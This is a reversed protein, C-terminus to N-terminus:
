ALRQIPSTLEEVQALMGSALQRFEASIAADSEVKEWFALAWAQANLWKEKSVLPDLKLPSIERRMAGANTPAFAMPLMDYVPSISLAQKLPDIAPDIFSLNGQHMDSNAILKGFAYIQEIRDLTTATILKNRRLQQATLFWNGNGGGFEASVAELSVLRRRGRAGTRDFREVELFVEGKGGTFIEAAAAAIGAEQLVSLAHAESRLLDGWRRTNENVAPSSFKVLVQSSQRDAHEAYCSFKPQEGGASSGTEEGALSRQALREYIQIKDERPVPIDEPKHFWRQYAMEGIVFNGVTEDGARALAVLTQSETWKKIDDPFHLAANIDRGWTRGLFGQPRMDTIFWPLGDYILSQGSATEVACSEGPWISYLTGAKVANGAENIQYLPFSWQNDLPRPLIYRTSRSQGIKIIEPIKVLRRSLTSQTIHLRETIEKATLSGQRLLDVLESM